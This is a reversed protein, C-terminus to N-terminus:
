PISALAALADPGLYLGVAGGVVFGLAFGLAVALARGAPRPRGAAGSPGGTPAQAADLAEPEPEAPAGAEDLRAFEPRALAEEMRRVAEDFSFEGEGLKRLRHLRGLLEATVRVYDHTASAQRNYVTAPQRKVEAKQVETDFRVRHRMLQGPFNTSLEGVVQRDRQTGEFLTILIGMVSLWPAIGGRLAAVTEATRQVGQLSFAGSTTPVVVSEAAVLANISLMGMAPPCDIVVFDFRHHSFSLITRLGQNPRLRDDLGSEILTLSRTSPIIWLNEVPTAHVADDIVATRRLVDVLSPTAGSRALITTSSQQPDLDVLLCSYGAAALCVSLNLSATTKGVGGKHNYVALTYPAAPANPQASAPANESM